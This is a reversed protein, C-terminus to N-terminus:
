KSFGDAMLLFTRTWGDPLPGAAAADFSLAIEDGPKAIAFMDDSRALLERVDGERTYRGPMGKWPSAASVREYDYSEPEKGDPQVVASFGRSGLTAVQPDIRVIPFTNVPASTAVLIRDWYIRMNTVIRVEHEGPRLHGALDVVITQPRGVPIGIDAIATRWAGAADKIQLSPSVLSLGAQHAAINDSSFAYDTWATLLLITPRAPPTALDITLTHEAAYGRVPALAFDDPYRRDIRAVADTVDHGHDDVVRTPAREDRVAYLRFPKPPETLGEDPFVDIDRPHAIAVLEFRDAYLTEELENTVRLDFRGDKPQLQDGRIRVYEVPDPRNYKGPGEWYGMEGGGMFDTIFEFRHGNWTFLFPCSSPKRNLEEISLPSPLTPTASGVDAAEAQLIGSPWLVRVVDAGTRAGLGFVIDASGVPPTASSTEFRARLSGARAEIKSGIGFRNSVRGTIRVRLARRRGDGSNRWLIPYGEAGTIFDTDGDGDIDAIAVMRPSDPVALAGTAPRPVARDSVDNWGQGVNRYMHPGAVSSTLLDLLGDNDYDVFQAALVGNGMPPADARVFRDRGDSQAIAGGTTGRAFFFDPFDDKNVDGAAVATVDDNPGIIATLGVDAAVERFTGDRVNQFLIPPLDRNVILLDIDRRNDFDTPVVAIAHTAAQLRADRTIDTFTGNGNNRL